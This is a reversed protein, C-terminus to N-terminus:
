IYCRAKWRDDLLVCQNTEKHKYFLRPNLFSFFLYNVSEIRTLLFMFDNMRSVETLQGKKDLVALLAVEEELLYGKSNEPLLRKLLPDPVSLLTTGTVSKKM